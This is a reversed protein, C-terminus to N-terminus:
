DQLKYEGKSFIFHEWLSLMLKFVFLLMIGIMIVSIGIGKIVAFLSKRWKSERQKRVLIMM